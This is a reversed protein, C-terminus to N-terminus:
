STIRKLGIGKGFCPSFSVVIVCDGGVFALLFETSLTNSKKYISDFM